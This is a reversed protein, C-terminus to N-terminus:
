AAIKHKDDNAARISELWTIYEHWFRNLNWMIDLLKQHSDSVQEELDPHIHSIGKSGIGEPSKNAIIDSM